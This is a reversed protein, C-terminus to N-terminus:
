ALRARSVHPRAMRGGGDKKCTSGAPVSCTPCPWAMWGTPPKDALGLIDLVEAADDGCRRTVYERADARMKETVPAAEARMGPDFTKASM